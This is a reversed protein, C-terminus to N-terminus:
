KRKKSKKKEKDKKKSYFTETFKHYMQEGEKISKSMAQLEEIFEEENFTENKILNVRENTLM